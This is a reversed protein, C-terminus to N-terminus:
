KNINRIEWGVSSNYNTNTNIVSAPLTVIPRIAASEPDTFYNSSMMDTCIVGKGVSYMAFMNSEEDLIYSARSALYYYGGTGFFINAYFENSENQDRTTVQKLNPKLNEENMSWRTQTIIIDRLQTEVTVKKKTTLPNQKSVLNIENYSEWEAPFSRGKVMNLPCTYKEGYSIYNGSAGYEERYKEYAKKGDEGVTMINQIDEIQMSRATAGILSNGYLSNCFNNLLVVGNQYGLADYLYVTNETPKLSILDVTGAEENKDLIVWKLDEQQIVQNSNYGSYIKEFEYSKQETQPKYNVYDGIELKGIDGPEDPVEPITTEYRFDIIRSGIKVEGQTEIDEREKPTILKQSELEDLLEALTKVTIGAVYKSTEIDSKWLDRAEQVNAGRTELKAETARKLVGNDMILTSITIASLILLVIITVLLAILTIGKEKNERVRKKM